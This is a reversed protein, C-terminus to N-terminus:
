IVGLGSDTVQPGRHDRGAVRRRVTLRVLLGWGVARSGRGGGSPAGFPM